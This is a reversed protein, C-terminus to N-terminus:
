LFESNNESYCSNESGNEFDCYGQIFACLFYDLNTRIVVVYINFCKIRDNSSSIVLAWANKKIDLTFECTPLDFFNSDCFFYFALFVVEDNTSWNYLMM